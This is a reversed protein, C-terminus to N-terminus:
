VGKLGERKERGCWVGENDACAVHRRKCAGQRRTRTRGTTKVEEGKNDKGLCWREGGDGRGEEM